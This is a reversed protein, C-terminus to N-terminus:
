REAQVHFEVHVHGVGRAEAAARLATLLLGQNPPKELSCNSRLDNDRM